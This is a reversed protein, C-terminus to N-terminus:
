MIPSMASIFSYCFLPFLISLSLARSFSICVLRGSLSSCYPVVHIGLPGHEGSIEVTKTLSCVCVCCVIVNCKFVGAGVCVLDFSCVSETEETTYVCVGEKLSGARDAEVSKVM